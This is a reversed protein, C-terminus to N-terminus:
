LLFSISPTRAAVESLVTGYKTLKEIYGCKEAHPITISGDSVEMYTIGYDKCVSIYDEVPQPDPFSRFAHGLICLCTM